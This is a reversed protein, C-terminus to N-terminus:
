NRKVIWPKKNQKILNDFDNKDKMTDLSKWFGNHKFAFLRKKRLYYSLPEKEWYTNNNKIKDVASKDIVFFGGNVFVDISKNENDFKDIKNKKLKIIGYRHKPKVATLTVTSKNKYHFKILNKINVNSLGDGYTMIIDENLKLCKYAIKIRGGTGTNIGTYVLNGIFKIQKNKFQFKLNNKNKSLIKVYKKKEKLFYNNITESKHGLCFVFENFGQFVFNEVIYILIPKTGIKIMPKAKLKGEYDLRTGFGGCLIFTKM